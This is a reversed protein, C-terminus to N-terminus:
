GWGGGGEGELGAEGVRNVSYILTYHIKSLTGLRMTQSGVVM